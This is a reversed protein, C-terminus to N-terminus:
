GLVRHDWLLWSVIILNITVIIAAAVPSTPTRPKGALAITAFSGVLILGVVFWDSANM